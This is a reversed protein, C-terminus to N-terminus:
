RFSATRLHISSTLPPERAIPLTSSHGARRNTTPLLVRVACGIPLLWDPDNQSAFQRGGSHFADGGAEPALPHILLLSSLPDGPAVLRTVTLFNQRSQEETREKAGALLPELHFIRNPDSHCAYCRAHGPREKLFVPEVKSKFFDFDFIEKSPASAAEKSQGANASRSPQVTSQSHRYAKALADMTLRLSAAAAILLVALGAKRLNRM